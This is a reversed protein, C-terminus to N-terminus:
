EEGTREAPATWPEAKQPPAAPREPAGAQAPLVPRAGAPRVRRRLRRVMWGLPALVLVFPAAAALAVLLGRLVAILVRWGAALADGISAWFGPRKEKAPEPATREAYLELTITSMSTRQALEQQQRKLSELDAERRSLEGELSVVESLSKAENMLARVRDVSAQKSKVRSDVDVVQQTLDDAQSSMSTTDGLRGLDSLTAQHAASPVKLVLQVRGPGPAAGGGSGGSGVREATGAPSPAGQTVSESGVYGHAAEVAGRAEDRAKSVDAVRLSLRATYAINKPDTVAPASPGAEAGGKAAAAGAQPAAGNGGGAQAPAVAGRDASAASGGESASCGAALLVAAVAAAVTPGGKGRGGRVERRVM